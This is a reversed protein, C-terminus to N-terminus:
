LEMMKPASTDLIIQPPQTVDREAARWHVRSWSAHVVRAADRAGNAMVVWEASLWRIWVNDVTLLCLRQCKDWLSLSCLSQLPQFNCDPMLVTEICDLAAVRKYNALREGVKWYVRWGQSSISENWCQFAVKDTSIIVNHSARSIDRVFAAATEPLSMFAFVIM